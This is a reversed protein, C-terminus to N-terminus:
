FTMKELKAVQKKLAAVKRERLQEAHAVAEERTLHWYPKSYVDDSTKASTHILNPFRESVQAEKELVGKTLAYQTIYVTM